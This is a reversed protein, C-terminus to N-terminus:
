QNSKQLYKEVFIQFQQLKELIFDCAEDIVRFFYQM